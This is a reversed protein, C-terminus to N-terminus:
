KRARERVLTALAILGSLLALVIKAVSDALIDPNQQLFLLTMVGFAVAIVVSTRKGLNTPRYLVSYTLALVASSLCLAVIFDTNM